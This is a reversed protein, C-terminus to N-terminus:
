TQLWRDVYWFYIPRHWFIYFIDFQWFSTLFILCIFWPPPKYFIVQCLSTLVYHPLNHPWIHLDYFQDFINIHVNQPNKSSWCMSSNDSRWRSVKSKRLADNKLRRMWLQTSFFTLNNLLGELKPGEVGWKLGGGVVSSMPFKPKLCIQVRSWINHLGLGQGGVVWIYSM